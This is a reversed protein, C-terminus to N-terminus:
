QQRHLHGRVLVPAWDIAHCHRVLLPVREMLHHGCLMMHTQQAEVHAAPRSNLAVAVAYGQQEVQVKAEHLRMHVGEAQEREGQLMGRHRSHRWM